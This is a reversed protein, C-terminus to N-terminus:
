GRIREELGNERIERQADWFRGAMHPLSCCIVHRARACFAEHVALWRRILASPPSLSHPIGPHHSPGHHRAPPHNIASSQSPFLLPPFHRFTKRPAFLPRAGLNLTQTTQPPPSRSRSVPPPPSPNPSPISISELAEREFNRNGDEDARGSREKIEEKRRRMMGYKHMARIVGETGDERGRWVRRWHRGSSKGDREM